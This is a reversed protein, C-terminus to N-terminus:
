VGRMCQMTMDNQPLDEKIQTRILLLQSGSGPSGPVCVCFESRCPWYPLEPLEPSNWQYEMIWSEDNTVPDDSTTCQQVM